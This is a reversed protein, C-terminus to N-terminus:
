NGTPVRRKLEEFWNIVVNIQAGAQASETPQIRLFRRGDPSVDHAGSLSGIYRGAYLLKPVGASFGPETKVDVAMTKDDLIYFLERGDRSWVPLAGGETSVQLKAGPGPFPRVYVEPRGSENSMYALWRGNPSFHANQENSPSNLLKQPKRDGDLPMVWVDLGTAPDQEDFVLRKGDPSVSNVTQISEGTTLREEEGSGDANKWFLNRFGARTGRYVVRKGDPTWEPWQSSGNSTLLTLTSRSFDYLWVGWTAGFITM